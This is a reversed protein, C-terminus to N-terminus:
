GECLEALRGRMATAPSIEADSLGYATMKTRHEDTGLYGALALNFRDVFAWNSKAFSFAGYGAASGRKDEPPVFDPALELETTNLKALIARQGLATASFADIRGELLASLADEQTGFEGIRQPPIGEQRGADLQVTARVVGLRTQPDAAISAYSNIGRPNGARVIMGDSLAWIPDSFAVIRCREPSIFLGTNMTWRGAAVGPLLDAFEVKVTKVAKIGMRGLVLRALEVDSGTAGEGAQMAFPPEEVYAFTVEAPLSDVTM